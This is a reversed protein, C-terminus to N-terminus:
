EKVEKRSLKKKMSYCWEMVERRSEQVEHQRKIEKEAESPEFLEIPKEIYKCVAKKGNLVGDIATTFASLGYTGFITYAMHNISEQKAKYAAEWVEIIRPNSRWFQEETM